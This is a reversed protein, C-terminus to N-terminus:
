TRAIIKMESRNYVLLVKGVACYKIEQSINDFRM